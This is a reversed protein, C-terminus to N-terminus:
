TIHDYIWDEYYDTFIIEEIGSEALKSMCDSCPKAPGTKLKKLIRAIFCTMKPASKQNYLWSKNLNTIAAIEAHLTSSHGSGNPHTKQMNNHGTAVVRNGTMIAAGVYFTNAEILSAKAAETLAAAKGTRNRKSYEKIDM